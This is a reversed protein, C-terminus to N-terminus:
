KELSSLHFQRLNELYNVLLGYKKRVFHFFFIIVWFPMFLDVSVLKTEITEIYIKEHM